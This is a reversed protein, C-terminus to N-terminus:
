FSQIGQTFQIIVHKVQLFFLPVHIIVWVSDHFSNPIVIVTMFTRSPTPIHGVFGIDHPLQSSYAAVTNGCRPLNTGDREGQVLVILDALGSGHERNTPHEMFIKM